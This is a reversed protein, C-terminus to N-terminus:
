QCFRCLPVLSVRFCGELGDWIEVKTSLERDVIAYIIEITACEDDRDSGM